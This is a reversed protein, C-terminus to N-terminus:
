LKLVTNVLDLWQVKDQRLHIWGSSRIRVCIFGTWM